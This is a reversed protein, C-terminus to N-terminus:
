SHVVRQVQVLRRFLHKLDEVPRVGPVSTLLAIDGAMIARRITEVSGVSLLTLAAKPGIGSISILREFMALDAATPFGYLDRSDERVHDHIYLRQEEGSVCSALTPVSAHVRYGVGDVDLLMFGPLVEAVIGKLSGIM